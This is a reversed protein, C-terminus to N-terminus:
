CGLLDKSKKTRSTKETKETTHWLMELTNISGTRLFTRGLFSGM